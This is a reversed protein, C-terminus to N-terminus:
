LRSKITQAVIGVIAAGIVFLMPSISTALSLVIVSLFIFSSLFDKEGKEWLGIITNVMLASVCVLIGALAYQVYANDMFGQLITAIVTIIIVSPAVVGLAAIIGGSTGMHHYGVFVSVNVAIIGPLGQSLAYYDVVKESSLWNRKEVVEIELIPLMTYGGGFTLSGMKFFAVFIELLDKIKQRRLDM